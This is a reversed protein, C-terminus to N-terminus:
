ASHSFDFLFYIYQIIENVYLELVSLVFRHPSFDFHQHGGPPSASISWFPNPPINRPHRLHNRGQHPNSSCM